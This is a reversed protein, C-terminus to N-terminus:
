RGLGVEKVIGNTEGAGIRKDINKKYPNSDVFNIKTPPTLNMPPNTSM